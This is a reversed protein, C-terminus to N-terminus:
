LVEFERGKYVFGKGCFYNGGTCGGVLVCMWGEGVEGYRGGYYNELSGIRGMM